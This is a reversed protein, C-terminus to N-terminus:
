SLLGLKQLYSIIEDSADDVSIKSAKIIIEPNQPAEYPSSIGTFNQIEGRRAKKYLGKEDREEAVELPVDIFIEIFHRAKEDKQVVQRALQREARFPSIFSVLTVLGADFTLKSVEAIRRINEVRDADTFGLDRNLGHRVNDGDLMMTHVGQAHLKQEVADAITSKGSGSLGTFWLVAAEHKKLEGRESRGIQTSQRHVNESRRLAFHLTGLAATENTMRDILIFSGTTRNEMYPDFPIEDSCSLNCVGIENLTLDPTALEAGSDVDIKHKIRTISAQVSRSACKLTYPRGQLMAKDDMWLISAEFQDAALCPSESKCIMNGQSIDVKDKLAMMVSQGCVAEEHEEDDIFLAQVHSTKGSPVARIADGKRISGCALRGFVGPLGATQHDVRQVPMRMPVTDATTNVPVAELLARLSPGTYWGMKDSPETINDGHLASVPITKLSQFPQLTKVYDRFEAEIAEFTTQNHDVLDLKNVCLILHEIGLLSVILTHRRTQSSIGKSGDVLLIALSSTSAGAAMNRTYKEHGPTDAVIFRRAKTSFYRYTVDITTGLEGEAILEDVLSAVNITSGHAPPPALEEKRAALQDDGIQQSAQLLRDVLTSKGDGQSGCAVFRLLTKDDQRELFATSGTDHITEETSM